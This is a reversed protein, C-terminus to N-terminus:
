GGGGVGERRERQRDAQKDTWGDWRRNEMCHASTVNMENQVYRIDVIGCVYVCVCVCVCVCVSM